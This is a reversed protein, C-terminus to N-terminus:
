IRGKKRDFLIKFIENLMCMYFYYRNANRDNKHRCIKVVKSNGKFSIGIYALGAPKESSIDKPGAVGTVSICLESATKRKLGEVMELAVEESEASFRELTEKRVGLERMKAEWTYTVISGTFVKSINPVEVLKSAFLGGTCSECSSITIGEDILKNGVVFNFEEDNSSYMYEGVINYVKEVYNNVATIADDRNRRTSAIRLTCESNKAYTALTPDTQKDILPLLRTELESEGIGFFRLVRYEIHSDTRERLYPEVGSEWMGSMESPPGPLSIATLGNKEIVFGPASGRYNHLIKCDEPMLAQKYNNETLNYGRKAAIREIHELSKKDCILKNGFFKSIVEKTLDDETPGLGGTSITLDCESYSYELIEKLREPNDGVTFHYLVSIGLENLKQSIYVSNTNTIQGFLIETGVSIIAAKM